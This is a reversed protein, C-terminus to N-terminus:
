CPPRPVSGQDIRILGGKGSCIISGDVDLVSGGIWLRDPLVTEVAAGAKRRYYGGGTLTASIFRVRRM